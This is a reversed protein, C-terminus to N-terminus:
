YDDWQDCSEYESQTPSPTHLPPPTSGQPGAWTQQRPLYKKTHSTPLSGLPDNPISGGAKKYMETSSKHMLGEQKENSSKRNPDTKITKDKTVKEREDCGSASTQKQHYPQHKESKTVANQEHIHEAISPIASRKVEGAGLKSKSSKRKVSSTKNSSSIM